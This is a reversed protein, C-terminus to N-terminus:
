LLLLGHLRTTSNTTSFGQLNRRCSVVQTYKRAKSCPYVPQHRTSGQQNKNSCSAIRCTNQGIVACQEWCPQAIWMSLWFSGEFVPNPQCPVWSNKSGFFARGHIVRAGAQQKQEAMSQQLAHILKKHGSFLGAFQFVRRLCTWDCDEITISQYAEHWSTDMLIISLDYMAHMVIINLSHQRDTDASVGCVECPCLHSLHLHAWRFEM